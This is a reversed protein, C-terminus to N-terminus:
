RINGQGSISIGTLRRGTSGEGYISRLTLESLRWCFRGKIANVLGRQALRRVTRPSVGLFRAVTHTRLLRQPPTEPVVNAIVCAESSTQQTCSGATEPVRWLLFTRTKGSGTKCNPFITQEM